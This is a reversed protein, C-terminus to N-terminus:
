RLRSSGKSSPVFEAKMEVGHIGIASLDIYGSQRDFYEQRERPLCSLKAALQGADNFRYVISMARSPYSWDLELKVSGCGFPYSVNVSDDYYEKEKKFVAVPRSFDELMDALAIICSLPDVDFQLRMHGNDPTMITKDGWYIKSMDHMMIAMAAWEVCFQRIPHTRDAPYDRIVDNLYLFGIAGPFGHTRRLAKDTIEVLRPHWTSPANRDLIRYGNLPCYLLRNGFTNVIREADATPSDPHYGVNELNNGLTDVYQWPYGMDHFTAALYAAEFFLSKWLSRCVKDEKLQARKLKDRKKLWPESERVGIGLLFNKLYSTKDWKLIEDICADLLCRGDSLKFIDSNFIDSYVDKEKKISQSIEKDKLLKQVVYATLPQHLVHDRNFKHWGVSALWDDALVEPLIFRYAPFSMQAYDMALAQLRYTKWYYEYSVRQRLKQFATALNNKHQEHEKELSHYRERNICMYPRYATPPSCRGSALTEQYDSFSFNVLLVGM